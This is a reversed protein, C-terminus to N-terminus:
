RVQFQSRESHEKEKTDQLALSICYGDCNGTVLRVRRPVRGVWVHDNITNIDRFLLKGGLQLFKSLAEKRSWFRTIMTDKQTPLHCDGTLFDREDRCFFYDVLAPPRPEIKEIDVGIGFPAIVSVAYEYSHSISISLEPHEAIFPARNPGNLVSIRPVTGNGNLAAMYQAFANKSAIRGSLWELRRKKVSMRLFIANEAETLWSAVFADPERQLRSATEAVRQIGYSFGFRRGNKELFEKMLTAM